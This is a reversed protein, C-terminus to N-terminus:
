RSGQSGARQLNLSITADEIDRKLNITDQKQVYNIATTIASMGLGAIFGPLGGVMAGAVGGELIGIGQQVTQNIFNAKEQLENSGTRLQVQSVNHNVIQTAVSKIKGYAVMATGFAKAQEQTLLGKSKETDSKANSGAVASSAGGQGSPYKLTLSYKHEM